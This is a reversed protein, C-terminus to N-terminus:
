LNYGYSCAIDKKYKSTYYEELNQKGNYKLALISKFGTYIM